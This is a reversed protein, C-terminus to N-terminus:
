QTGSSPDSLHANLKQGLKSYSECLRDYVDMDSQYQEKGYEDTKSAKQALKKLLMALQEVTERLALLYDM